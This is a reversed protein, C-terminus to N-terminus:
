EERKETKDSNLLKRLLEAAIEKGGLGFALAFALGVGLCISFVVIEVVEPSVGVYPLAIFIAAVVFAFKVTKGITESEVRKEFLGGLYAGAFLIM